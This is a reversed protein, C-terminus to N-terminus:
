RALTLLAFTIVELLSAGILLVISLFAIWGWAAPRSWAGRWVWWGLPAALLVTLSHGGAVLPPLGAVVLLPLLGYVLALLILYIRRTTTRGLRVVLTRKKALIDGEMDPLAVSILM